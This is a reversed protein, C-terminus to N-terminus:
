LLKKKLCAGAHTRETWRWFLMRTHTNGAKPGVQVEASFNLIVNKATAKLSTLDCKLNQDCHM